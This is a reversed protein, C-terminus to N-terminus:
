LGGFHSGQPLLVQVGTIAGAHTCRKGPVLM